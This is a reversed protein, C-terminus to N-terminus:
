PEFNLQKMKERILKLDTWALKKQDPQRMLFAPHFSAIIYPDCNGIKKKIWKMLHELIPKGGLPMMPKPKKNTLPRLRKGLGGALIIAKMFKYEQQAV